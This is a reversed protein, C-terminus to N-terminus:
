QAVSAPGGLHGRGRPDRGRDQRASQSCADQSHVSQYLARRRDACEIKGDGSAAPCRARTQDTDAWLPPAAACTSGAVARGRDKGARPAGPLHTRCGREHGLRRGSGVPPFLNSRRAPGPCGGSRRALGGPTAGTRAVQGYGAATLQVGLEPQGFLIALEGWVSFSYMLDRPDGRKARIVLSERLYPLSGTLDGTQMANSGLNHLNLAIGEEFGVARNIDLAELYLQNSESFRGSRAAIYALSALAVAEGGMDGEAAKIRRSEEYLARARELEGKDALATALNHLARAYGRDNGLQQLQAAAKGHQEIATDFAGLYRSVLGLNDWVQAQRMRDDLTGFLHASTEFLAGAEAYNGRGLEIMARNNMASQWAANTMSPFGSPRRESM